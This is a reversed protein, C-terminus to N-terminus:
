PASYDGEVTTGRDTLMRISYTEGSTWGSGVTLTKHDGVKVEEEGEWVVSGDVFVAIVEADIMGYNYVTVAITRDDKFWVDEIALREKLGAGIGQRYIDVYRNVFAFVVSTATVVVMLMLIHSILDSIGRRRRPLGGGDRVADRRCRPLPRDNLASTAM